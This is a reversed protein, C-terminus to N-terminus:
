RGENYEEWTDCGRDALGQLREQRTLRRSTVEAKIEARCDGCYGYEDMWADLYSMGCRNCILEQESINM